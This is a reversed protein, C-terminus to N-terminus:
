IRRFDRTDTGFHMGIEVFVKIDLGQIFQKINM